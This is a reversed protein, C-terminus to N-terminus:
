AATQEPKPQKSAEILQNKWFSIRSSYHDLQDPDLDSDGHKILEKILTSKDSEDFISINKKLKLAQHEKRLIELGM